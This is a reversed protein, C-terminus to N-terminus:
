RNLLLGLLSAHYNLGVKVTHVDVKESLNAAGVQERVRGFDSYAYELKASWRSAFEYEVGAGATWGLAFTDSSVPGAIDSDIHAWALGGTGYLLVNNVAYGLRARATGMSDIKVQTAGASDKLSGWSTDTEAGLVWNPAFQWNYGTQIGGFGGDPDLNTAAGAVSTEYNGRGYGGHVGIYSGNWRGAPVAQAKVPMASASNSFSGFRYNLGLRVMSLTVDTNAPTVVGYLRRSDGFDAYLYEIKASWRPAFAYELGVGATWGIQTRDTRVPAAPLRFETNAWATGATGYLLWPGQVYGLRGRVTGFTDTKFGSPTFGSVSDNIDGFSADVETGVLWNPTLMYNYGIQLGGFGGKPSGSGSAAGLQVDVDGSAYGGHVGVYVGDWSWVSSPNAIIPAPAKVPMDAALASGSWVVSAAVAAVASKKVRVFGM